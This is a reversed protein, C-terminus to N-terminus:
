DTPSAGGQALALQASAYRRICASSTKLPQPCDATECGYAVNTLGDADDRLSRCPPETALSAPRDVERMRRDHESLHHREESQCARNDIPEQSLQCRGAEKFLYQALRHRPFLPEHSTAYWGRQRHSIDTRRARWARALRRVIALGLGLGHRRDREPNHLQVFEQFVAEHKDHPIGPGTDSVSLLARGHDSYARLTVTGERTYKVANELLNRLLRKLQEPDTDVWL